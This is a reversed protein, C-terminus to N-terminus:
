IITWKQARLVRHRKSYNKTIEGDNVRYINYMSMYKDHIVPATVYEFSICAYEKESFPSTGPCLTTSCPYSPNDHMNLDVAPCPQGLYAFLTCCELGGGGGGGRRRRELVELV